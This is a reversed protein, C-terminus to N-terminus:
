AEMRMKSGCRSCYLKDHPHKHCVKGCKSCKWRAKGEDDTEYKWVGFRAEKEIM